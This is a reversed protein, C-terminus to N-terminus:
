LAFIICYYFLMYCSLIFYFLWVICCLSVYPLVIRKLLGSALVRTDNLWGRPGNLRLAWKTLPRRKKPASVEAFWFLNETRITRDARKTAETIEIDIYIYTSKNQTLKKQITPKSSRRSGGRSHHEWFFTLSKLRAQFWWGSWNPSYIYIIMKQRMIGWNHWPDGVWILFWRYLGVAYVTHVGTRRYWVSVCVRVRIHTYTYIYIYLVM